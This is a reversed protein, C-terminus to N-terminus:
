RCSGPWFRSWFAKRLACHPSEKKHSFPWVGASCSSVIHTCTQPVWPHPQSEKALHSPDIQLSFSKARPM